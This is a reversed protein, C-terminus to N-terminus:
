KEEKGTSFEAFGPPSGERQGPQGTTEESATTDGECVDATGWRQCSEPGPSITYTHTQEAGFGASGQGVVAAGLGSPARYSSRRSVCTQLPSAQQNTKILPYNRNANTPRLAPIV